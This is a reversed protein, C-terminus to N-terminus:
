HITKFLWYYYQYCLSFYFFWAQLVNLIKPIKSTTYLSTFFQQTRVDFIKIFTLLYLPGYVFTIALLIQQIMTKTQKFTFYYSIFFYMIYLCDM